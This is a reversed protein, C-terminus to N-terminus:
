GFDKGWLGTRNYMDLNYFCKECMEANFTDQYLKNFRNHGYTPREFVEGGRSVAFYLSEKFYDKPEMVEECWFCVLKQPLQRKIDVWVCFINNFFKKRNKSNLIEIKKKTQMYTHCNLVLYTNKDLIEIKNSYFKSFLGWNTGM